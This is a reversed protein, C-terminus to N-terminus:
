KHQAVADNPAPAEAAAGLGGGSGGAGPLAPATQPALAQGRTRIRELLDAAVAPEDKIFEALVKGRKSEDMKALYAIVQDTQKSDLLAKLISKADKPKQAELTALAAKFQAAGEMEIVKKREAEFAVKQATLQAERKELDAIQRLVFSKLSELEQQKRQAQQLDKEAQVQKEAIKESATEPPAAAKAEAAVKVKAAEMEGQEAARAQTEQALTVKFMKRVSEFRERNLRDSLHLWGFLGGIALINAIALTSLIMWLRKM